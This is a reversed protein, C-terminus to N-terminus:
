LSALSADALCAAEVAGPLRRYVTAAGNDNRDPHSDKDRRMVVDDRESPPDSDSTAPQVLADM